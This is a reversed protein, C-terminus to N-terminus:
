VRHARGPSADAQRDRFGVDSLDASERACGQVLSNVGLVLVAAIVKMTLKAPKVLWADITCRSPPSAFATSTGFSREQSHASM